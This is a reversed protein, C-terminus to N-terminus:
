ISRKINNKLSKRSRFVWAFGLQKITLFVTLLFVVGHVWWLGFKPSIMGQELWARSISLLNFYLVYYLMAGALKGYRGQSPKVRSVPVALLALFLTALPLSIRWQLESIEKPNKSVWLVESPIAGRALNDNGRLKSILKFAHEKYRTMRYDAEGPVGDYRYGNVLVLIREGIKNSEIRAQAASFVVSRSRMKAHIFINKTSNGQKSVSEVYIIRESGGVERFRGPSIGTVELDQEANKIIKYEIQATIPVIKLSIWILLATVPIALILVTKFQTLYGVGCSALASMENDRYLRGLALLIGLYLALPIVLVIYNISKLGILTLIIDSPIDGTAADALYRVLRNSVFILLLVISVGFLTQLIEKSIYREIISFM